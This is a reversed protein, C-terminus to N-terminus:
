EVTVLRTGALRDHLFQKSPHLWAIAIYVAVWGFLTGYLKFKNLTNFTLAILPPAFWLWSLAYRLAALKVSVPQGFANTIKFRWTKMALTQGKSWFWTFYCGMVFVLLIQLEIRHTLAHTSQTIYGFILGTIACLAFLLLGEYIWSAMRRYLSPVDLKVSM